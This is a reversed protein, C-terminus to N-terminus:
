KLLLEKWDPEDQHREFAAMDDFDDLPGILSPAVSAPCNAVVHALTAATSWAVHNFISPPPPASAGVLYFGGDESPGFVLTDRGLATVAQKIHLSNLDPIDSGVVIVPSSRTATSLLRLMRAGLDGDGQPIRPFGAPWNLRDEATDDPTVSLILTWTGEDLRKACRWLMRKYIVLAAADGLDAALRTKVSGLVPAKAFIYVRPLPFVGVAPTEDSETM